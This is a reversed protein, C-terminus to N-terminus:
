DSALCNKSNRTKLTTMRDFDSMLPAPFARKNSTKLTTTRDIGSSMPSPFSPALSLELMKGIEIILSELESVRRGGGNKSEKVANQSRDIIVKSNNDWEKEREAANVTIGNDIVGSHTNKSHTLVM